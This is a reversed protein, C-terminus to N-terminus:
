CPEVDMNLYLLLVFFLSLIMFNVGTLLFYNYGKFVTNYSLFRYYILANKSRIKGKAKTGGAAKECHFVDVM